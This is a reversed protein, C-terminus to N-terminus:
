AFALNAQTSTNRRRMAVGLAGFGLLMMAWTGPEPVGPVASRVTAYIVMDDYDDDQNNIQDDYGLWFSSVASGSVQDPGLFISFGRQGVTAPAGGASSFNLRGALDGATFLGEGIFVPSAFNNTLPTTETITYNPTSITSFTDNYGSESGLFWFSIYSDVDLSLGAGTTAYRTLGNPSALLTKFDNNGPIVKTTGFTIFASAHAAAPATLASLAALAALYKKM